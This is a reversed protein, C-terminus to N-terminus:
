FNSRGFSDDVRVRNRADRAKCKFKVHLIRFLEERMSYSLDDRLLLQKLQHESMEYITQGGVRNMPDNQTSSSM